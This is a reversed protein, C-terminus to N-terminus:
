PEVESLTTAALIIAEHAAARIAIGVEPSAAEWAAVVDDFAAGWPIPQALAVDRIHQATRLGLRTAPMLPVLTTPIAYGCGRATISLHGDVLAVVLPGLSDCYEPCMGSQRAVDVTHPRDRASLSM